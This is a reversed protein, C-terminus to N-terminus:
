INIIKELQNNRIWNRYITSRRLNDNIEFAGKVSKIKFFFWGTSLKFWLFLKSKRIPSSSDSSSICIDTFTFTVNLFDFSCIRNTSAPSSKVSNKKLKRVNGKPPTNCMSWPNEKKLQMSLMNLLKHSKLRSIYKIDCPCLSLSVLGRM